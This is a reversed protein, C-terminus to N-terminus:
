DRHKIKWPSGAVRASGPENYVRWPISPSEFIILCVTRGSSTIMMRIVWTRPGRTVLRGLEGRVISTTKDSVALHSM